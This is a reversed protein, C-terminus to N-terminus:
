RVAVPPLDTPCRGTRGARGCGWGEFPPGGESRHWAPSGSGCPRPTSVSTRPGTATPGTATAHSPETTRRSSAPRTTRHTSAPPPMSGPWPPWRTPSWTPTPWTSSPPRVPRRAPGSPTPGASGGSPRSPRTAPIDVPDVEDSYTARFVAFLSAGSAVTEVVDRHLHVVVAGPFAAVLAPLEATHAPAKLVFRREDGAGLLHLAQRYRRYSPGLDQEALWAAYGDLRVTSTFGWNRLDTGMALVCEEPLRAGSSHVAALTPNLLHLLDHAGAAADLLREREPADVGAFRWPASLEAPLPAHLRPDTALLRFLFTTGTRWGGVIVIPPQPLPGDAGGLRDAAAAVKAGAVLRGTATERAMRRGLANLRGDEEASALYAALGEEWGDAFSSPALSGGRTAREVVADPDLVYREPRAARDAEAAAYVAQADASRPPPTWTV